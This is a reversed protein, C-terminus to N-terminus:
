NQGESVAVGAPERDRGSSTSVQNAYRIVQGSSLFADLAEKPVHPTSLVELNILNFKEDCAISLDLDTLASVLERDCAVDRQVAVFLLGNPRITLYAAHIQDRHTQIWAALRDQLVAIQNIASYSSDLIQCARVAEEVEICFKDRDKPSVVVTQGTGEELLVITRTTKTPM